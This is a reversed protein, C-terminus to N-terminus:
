KRHTQQQQFKIIIPNGTEHFSGVNM